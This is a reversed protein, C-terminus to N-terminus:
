IRSNSLMKCLYLNHSNLSPLFRYKNRNRYSLYESLSIESYKEMMNERERVGGGISKICQM